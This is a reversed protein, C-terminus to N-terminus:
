PRGLAVEVALAVGDAADANPRFVGEGVVGVLAEAKEAEDGAARHAVDDQAVGIDPAQLVEAADDAVEAAVGDSHGGAVGGDAREPGEVVLGAVGAGLGVGVDDAVIGLQLQKGAAHVLAVSVGRIFEEFEAGVDDAEVALVVVRGDADVARILMEEAGEVAVAVGDAADADATAGAILTEEAIEAAGGHLVDGESAAGDNAAVFDAADHAVAKGAGELVAAHQAVDSDLGIGATGVVVAADDAIYKAMSGDVAAVAGGGDGAVVIAIALVIAADDAFSVAGDAVAYGVAGPNDSTLFAATAGDDAGVVDAGEGVVVVVLAADAVEGVVDAGAAAVDGVVVARDLGVADGQEVVVAVVEDECAVGAVGGVVEGEGAAREVAVAVPVGEAERERHAGCM